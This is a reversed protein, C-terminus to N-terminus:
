EEDDDEDDADEPPAEGGIPLVAKGMVREVLRILAQKRLEYFRQFEDARLPGPEILHTRLIEDQEEVGIQVQAHERIQQLYRSPAKGGIM